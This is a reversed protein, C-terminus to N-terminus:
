RAKCETGYKMTLRSFEKEYKNIENYKMQMNIAVRNNFVIYWPSIADCSKIYTTNKMNNWQIALIEWDENVLICNSGNTHSYPYHNYLMELSAEYPLNTFSPNQEWSDRKIRSFDRIDKPSIVKVFLSSGVIEYSYEEGIEINNYLSLEPRSNLLNQITDLFM